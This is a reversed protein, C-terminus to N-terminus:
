YCANNMLFIRVDDSQDFFALQRLRTNDPPLQVGPLLTLQFTLIGNSNLGKNVFVGPYVGMNQDSKSWSTVGLGLDPKGDMNVDGVAPGILSSTLLGSRIQPTSTLSWRM